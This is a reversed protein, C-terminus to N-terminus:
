RWLNRHQLKSVESYYGNNAEERVRHLRVSLQRHYEGWYSIQAALRKHVDRM